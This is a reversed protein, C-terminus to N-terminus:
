GNSVIFVFLSSICLENHHGKFKHYHSYVDESACHLKHPFIEVM